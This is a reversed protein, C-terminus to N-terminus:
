PKTSEILPLLREAVDLDEQTKIVHGGTRSLPFFGVKGAYTATRGAEHAAVYTASRWGTIGWTIRQVPELEQSNTKREFSFNVPRGGLMCEIQELPGSLLVDHRSARMAGVFERVEGATLLPAISHVQFLLECPHARLFQYVFDESTASSSALEAPRRHFGVGEAEAIAGFDPHESNVWVEDFVAASKCKRIARTILPVGGLPRLNKRTLRQSGMRAPIMAIADKM